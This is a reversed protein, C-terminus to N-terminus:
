MTHLLLLMDGYRWVDDVDHRVTCYHACVIPVDTAAANRETRKGNELDVLGWAAFLPIFLTIADATTTTTTIRCCCVFLV